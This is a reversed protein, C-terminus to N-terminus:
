SIIILTQNYFQHGESRDRGGTLPPLNRLSEGGGEGMGGGTIHLDEDNDGGGGGGM